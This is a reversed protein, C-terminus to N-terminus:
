LSVKSSAMYLLCVNPPSDLNILIPTAAPVDLLVPLLLKSIFQLKSALYYTFEILLPDAVQSGTTSIFFLQAGISILM